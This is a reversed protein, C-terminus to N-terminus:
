CPCRSLQVSLLPTTFILIRLYVTLVFLGAELRHLKNTNRYHTPDQTTAWVVVKAIKTSM